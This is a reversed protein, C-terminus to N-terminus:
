KSNPTWSLTRLILINLNAEQPTVLATTQGECLQDNNSDKGTINNELSGVHRVNLFKSSALSENEMSDDDDSKDVEDQIWGGGGRYDNDPPNIEYGSDDDYYDDERDNLPTNANKEPPLLENCEGIIERIRICVHVGDVIIPMTHQIVEMIKTRIFVKGAVLNNRTPNCKEPLIIEGWNGAIQLFDAEHWAQPPIGEILI